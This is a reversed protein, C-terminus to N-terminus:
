SRFVKPDVNRTESEGQLWLSSRSRSGSCEKKEQEENGGTLLARQVKTGGVKKFVDGGVEDGGRVRLGWGGM